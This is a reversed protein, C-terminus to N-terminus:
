RDQLVAHVTIPERFGHVNLQITSDGPVTIHKVKLYGTITAYIGNDYPFSYLSSTGVRVFAEEAPRDETSAPCQTAMATLLLASVLAAGAGRDIKLRNKM